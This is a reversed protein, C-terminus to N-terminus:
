HLLVKRTIQFTDFNIEIVYLGKKLMQTNISMESRNLSTNSILLKGNMDFIKIAQFPKDSCIKILGNKYDSFISLEPEQDKKIGSSNNESVILSSLFVQDGSTLGDGNVTNAAGYFTVTGTGAVPATWDFTWSYANSNAVGNHTVANDGNTLKTVTSNTIIFTGAKNENNEATFEFGMKQAAPNAAGFSLTYTTGPIYGTEPIDTTILNEMNIPTCAHCQSCNNGDLPSGTKGGPSGGSNLTASILAILLIPLAVFLLKNKKMM